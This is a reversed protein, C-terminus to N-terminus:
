GNAGAGHQDPRPEEDALDIESLMASFGTAADQEARLKTAYAMAMHRHASSARRCSTMAAARSEEMARRSFYDLDTEDHRQM